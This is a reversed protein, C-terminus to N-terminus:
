ESEDVKGQYANLINTVWINMRNELLDLFRRHRQTLSHPIAGKCEPNDKRYKTEIEDMQWRVMEGAITVDALGKAKKIVRDLAPYTMAEDSKKSM